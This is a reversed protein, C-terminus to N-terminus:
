WFAGPPCLKLMEDFTKPKFNAVFWARAERMKEERRLDYLKLILEADAVTPKKAMM